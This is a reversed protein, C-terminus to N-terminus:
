RGRTSGPQKMRDSYHVAFHEFNTVMPDLVEMQHSTCGDALCLRKYKHLLPLALRDRGRFLITPEEDPIRELGGNALRKAIYIEAESFRVQDHDVDMDPVELVIVHKNDIRKTKLIM